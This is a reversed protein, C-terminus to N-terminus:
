AQGLIWILDGATPNIRAAPYQADGKM